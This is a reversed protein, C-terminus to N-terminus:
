QISEDGGAVRVIWDVVVEPASAVPVHGTPIVTVDVERGSESAIRDIAQQQVGPPVIRDGDCLLYAVPVDKYGAYTLPNVMSVASHRTFQQMWALGEDPPMDSFCAAAFAPIDVQSIWGQEDVSTERQPVDALVAAAPAGLSPVLAALYALRVVGGAGERKVLGQVSQSAPTGGYSHAVVVVEKGQEVLRSIERAIAAADDYMTGPPPLPGASPAVSPLRVAHIDYGQSAVKTTVGEYCEPPAFAGPVLVISPKSQSM